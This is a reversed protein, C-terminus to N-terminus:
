MGSHSDPGYKLSNEIISRVGGVTKNCCIDVLAKATAKDSETEQWLEILYIVKASNSFKLYDKMINNKLHRITCKLMLWGMQLWNQTIHESGSIYEIDTRTIPRDLDHCDHQDNEPFVSSCTESNASIARHRTGISGASSRGSDEM